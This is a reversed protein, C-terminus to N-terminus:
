RVEGGDSASDGLDSDPHSGETWKYLTGAVASHATQPRISGDLNERCTLTGRYVNFGTCLNAVYNRFSQGDTGNAMDIGQCNTKGSGLLYCYFVNIWTCSTGFVCAAGVGDRVQVKLNRVEVQQVGCGKVLIGDLASGGTFDLFVLQSTHLSTASPEGTNGQIYVDGGGYFGTFELANDFNYTGDEFQFTISVGKPIHRGVKDISAQIDAESMGNTFTITRSEPEVLPVEYVPTSSDREVIRFYMPTPLCMVAGTIPQETLSGWNTWVGSSLSTAFELTYYNSVSSSEFVLQGDDYEIIQPAQALISGTGVCLVTLIGLLVHLKV